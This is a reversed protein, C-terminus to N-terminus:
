EKINPNKRTLGEVIDIISRGNVGYPQAFERLGAIGKKDAIEELDERTWSYDLEAAPEEEVVETESEVVETESEDAVDEADSAVNARKAAEMQALSHNRTDVMEQSASPNKGSKAEVVSMAGAIRRAESRSVPETSVGDKFEVEGIFGTYGEMGRQTIKLVPM